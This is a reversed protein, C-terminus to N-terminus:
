PAPTLRAELHVTQVHCAGATVRVGERVWPQYGTKTVSVTYLGEREDAGYLDAATLDDDLAPNRLTEQYEDDVAVGTAGHAAPAETLSDLVRVILGPEVSTTCPGNLDCASLLLSIGALLAPSPHM